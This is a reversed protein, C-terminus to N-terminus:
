SICKGYEPCTGPMIVIDDLAIFSYFISVDDAIVDYTVNVVDVVPLTVQFLVWDNYFTSQARYTERSRNYGDM